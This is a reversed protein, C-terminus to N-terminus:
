MWKTITEYVSFTDGLKVYDGDEKWVFYTVVLSDDTRYRETYWTYTM